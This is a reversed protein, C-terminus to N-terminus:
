KVLISIRRKFDDFKWNPTQFGQQTNWFIATAILYNEVCKFIERAGGKWKTEMAAELESVFKIRILALVFVPAETKFIWILYNCIFNM